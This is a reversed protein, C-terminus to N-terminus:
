DNIIKLLDKSSNKVDEDGTLVLSVLLPKLPLLQEGLQKRNSSFASWTLLLSVANNIFSVDESLSSLFRVFLPIIPVKFDDRLVAAITGLVNKRNDTIDVDKLAKILPEVARADGIKGLARVADEGVFWSDDKLAKILPEVARTDGIKELAGVADRRVRSEVDKLAKILPEVARADGIKGLSGAATGRVFWSDDKLAKILPEVARADGLEGLSGVANWRVSSDVDTLAKVLPEVARTDGLEGLVRAAVSRINEDGGALSGILPDFAPDGLAGLADTIAVFFLGESDSRPIELLPKVARADASHGLKEIAAECVEWDVVTLIEGPYEIKGLSEFAESDYRSDMAALLAEVVRPDAIRGLAEAARSRVDANKDQLNSSLAEVVRKAVDSEYPGGLFRTAAARIEEDEDNLSRILTEYAPDGLVDLARIFASEYLYENGSKYIFRLLPKVTHADGLRGLKEIAAKRAAQDKSGLDELLSELEKEGDMMTDEARWKGTM